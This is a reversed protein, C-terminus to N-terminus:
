AIAQAKESALRQALNAPSEGPRPSEDLNPALATFPVFVRALLEARYRSSSALILPSTKSILPRMKIQNGAKAPVYTKRLESRDSLFVLAKVNSPPLKLM